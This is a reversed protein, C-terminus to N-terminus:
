VSWHWNDPIFAPPTIDFDRSLIDTDPRVIEVWYGATKLDKWDVVYFTNGDSVTKVFPEYEQIFDFLDATYCAAVSLIAGGKTALYAQITMMPYLYGERMAEVRKVFETASGTKRSRRVTFTDWSKHTWQVRTALTRLQRNPLTQIADIGAFRDLETQFDDEVNNEITRLVGGGLPISIYPWIRHFDVASDNLDNNINSM